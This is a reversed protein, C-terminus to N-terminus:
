ELRADEPGPVRQRHRHQALTRFLSSLGRRIQLENGAGTAAGGARTKRAGVAQQNYQHQRLNHPM